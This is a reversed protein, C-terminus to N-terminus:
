SAEPRMTASFEGKRCMACVSSSLPLRVADAQLLPVDVQSRDLKAQAVRLMQFAFDIGVVRGPAGRTANLASIALDGTGTCLDLLRDEETLELSAM